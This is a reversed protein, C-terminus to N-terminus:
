ELMKFDYIGYPYLTMHALNITVYGPTEDINQADVRIDVNGLHIEAITILDKEEEMYGIMTASYREEQVLKEFEEKKCRIEDIVIDQRERSIGDIGNNIVYELNNVSTGRFKILQLELKERNKKTYPVLECKICKNEKSFKFAM